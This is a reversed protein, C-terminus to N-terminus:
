YTQTRSVDRDLVEIRGASGVFARPRGMGHIGGNGDISNDDDNNSCFQVSKRNDVRVEVHDSKGFDARIEVSPNCAVQESVPEASICHPVIFYDCLMFSSSQLTLVPDSILSKSMCRKDIILKLFTEIHSRGGCFRGKLGGDREQIREETVVVGGVGNGAIDKMGVTEASSDAGIGGNRGEAEFRWVKGGHEENLEVGKGGCISRAGGSSEGGVGVLNGVGTGVSGGVGASKGLVM